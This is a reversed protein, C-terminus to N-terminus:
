DVSTNAHEQRDAHFGVAPDDVAQVLDECRAARLCCVGEERGCILRHAPPDIRVRAVTNLEAVVVSLEHRLVVSVVSDTADRAINIVAGVARNNMAQLGAVIGQYSLFRDKKGLRHM